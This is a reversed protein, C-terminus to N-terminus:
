EEPETPLLENGPSDESGSSAAGAPDSPEDGLVHPRGALMTISTILGTDRAGVLEWARAVGVLLSAVLAYGILQASTSSDPRGVLVIGAILETGFILLLFVVLEL